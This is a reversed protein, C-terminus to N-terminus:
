SLIPPFLCDLASGPRAKKGWSSRWGLSKGLCLGSDCESPEKYLVCTKGGLCIISAAWTFCLLPLLSIAQWSLPQSILRPHFGSFHINKVEKRICALSIWLSSLSGDHTPDVLYCTLSRSLNFDLRSWRGSSSTKKTNSDRGVSVALEQLNPAPPQSPCPKLLPLYLAM